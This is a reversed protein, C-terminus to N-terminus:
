KQPYAAIIGNAPNIEAYKPTRLVMVTTMNIELKNLKAKVQIMVMGFNPYTMRGSGVRFLIMEESKIKTEGKSDKKAYNM